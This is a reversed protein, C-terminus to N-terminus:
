EYPKETEGRKNSHHSTEVTITAGPKANSPQRGSSLTQLGGAGPFVSVISYQRLTMTKQYDPSKM